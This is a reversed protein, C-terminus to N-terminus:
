EDSKKIPELRGFQWALCIDAPENLFVKGIDVWQTTKCENVLRGEHLAEVFAQRCVVFSIRQKVYYTGKSCLTGSRGNEEGTQYLIAIHM